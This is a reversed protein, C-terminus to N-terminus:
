RFNKAQLRPAALSAFGLQPFFTRPDPEPFACRIVMLVSGARDRRVPADWHNLRIDIFGFALHVKVGRPLLTM